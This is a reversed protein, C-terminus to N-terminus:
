TAAVKTIVASKSFLSSKVTRKKQDETHKKSDDINLNEWQPILEQPSLHLFIM